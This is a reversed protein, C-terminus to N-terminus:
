AGRAALLPSFEVTVGDPDWDGDRVENIVFDRAEAFSGFPGFTDPNDGSQRHGALVAVPGAPLNDYAERWHVDELWCDYNSKDFSTDCSPCLRALEVVSDADIDHCDVDVVATTGDTFTVTVREWTVDEGWALERGRMTASDTGAITKGIVDASTIDM